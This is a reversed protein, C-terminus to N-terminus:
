AGGPAAAFMRRGAVLGPPFQPGHPISLEIGFSLLAVDDLNALTRWFRPTRGRM